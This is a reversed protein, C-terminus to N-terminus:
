AGEELPVVLRAELLRRGACRASLALEISRDGAPRLDAALDLIEGPSVFARLKVDRVTRRSGFAEGRRRGEAEALDTGLAVAAELLLTGPLVPRRPFHDAFFDASRPVELRASRRGAQDGARLELSPKLVDADTRESARAEGACLAAFRLALKGPDDFQEAPLMPGVCRSLRVVPGGGLAASGHYAVAGADLSEIEVALDLIAGPAPVSFIEVEGALAAVPRTAFCVKAMAVWAALQGIGEAVLSPSLPRPGAHLLGRASRGPEIELIRDVFQFGM